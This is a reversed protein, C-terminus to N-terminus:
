LHFLDCRHERIQCECSVGLLSGRRGDGRKHVGPNHQPVALGISPRSALKVNQFGAAHCMRTFRTLEDHTLSAQLQAEHQPIMICLVRCAFDWPCDGCGLLWNPRYLSLSRLVSMFGLVVILFLEAFFRGALVLPPSKNM